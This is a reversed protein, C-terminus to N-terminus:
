DVTATAVLMPHDSAGGTRQVLYDSFDIDSTGFIWDIMAFRPLACGPGDGGPNAAVLDNGRTMTCYAEGVENFDGTLVVPVQPAAKKLRRVTALQRQKGVDRWHKNNGRRPNSTPNHINFFYAQRDTAKHTLLIVPMEIPEGGFYPITVTDYDALEWVSRRWAISNRVFGRGLSLAPYVGWAGDTRRMFETFQTHEFEQFGVVDVDNDNLMRIQPGMRASASAWGPKNGGPSTHSAGLVNFSSVVFRLTENVPEPANAEDILGQARAALDGADDGLGSALGSETLGTRKEPQGPFAEKSPKATPAPASSSATPESPSPAASSSRPSPEPSSQAKPATEGSSQVLATVGAGSGLVALLAAALVAGRRWRPSSRRHNGM